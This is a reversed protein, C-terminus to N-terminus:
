GRVKSTRGASTIGVMIGFSWRGSGELERLWAVYDASAGDLSDCIIGASVKVGLRESLEFFRRWKETPRRVDDAKIIVTRTTPTAAVLSDSSVWAVALLAILWAFFFRITM